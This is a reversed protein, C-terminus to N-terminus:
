SEYSFIRLLICFFADGSYLGCAVGCHIFISCSHLDNCSLALEIALALTHAQIEINIQKKDTSREQFCMSVCVCAPLCTCACM